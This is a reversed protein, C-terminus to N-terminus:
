AILVIGKWYGLADLSLKRNQSQKRKVSEVHKWSVRILIHLNQILSLKFVFIIKSQFSFDKNLLFHKKVFDLKLFICTRVTVVFFKYKLKRLLIKINLDEWKNLCKLKRDFQHILQIIKPKHLSGYCCSPMGVSLIYATFTINLCPNEQQKHKTM